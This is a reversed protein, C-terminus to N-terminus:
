QVVCPVTPDAICNETPPEGRWSCTKSYRCADDTLAALQTQVAADDTSDTLLIQDHDEFVYEMPNMKKEAGNVFLRMPGSECAAFPHDPSVTYWCWEGAKESALGFGISTFFEGLTLGPKHRHIVHGNGDHLHLYKREPITTEDPHGDEVGDHAMAAPIFRFTVPEDIPDKVPESMYKQDSFDLQVGDIWVAFDAHTHNPDPNKDFSTKPSFALIAAIAAVGLVSPVYSYNM